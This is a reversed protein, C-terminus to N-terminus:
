NSFLSSSYYVYKEGLTIDCVAHPLMFGHRADKCALVGNILHRGDRGKSSADTIARHVSTCTPPKRRQAPTHSVSTTTPTRPPRTPTRAHPSFPLPASLDVLARLCTGRGRSVEDDDSDDLHDRLWEQYKTIECFYALGSGLEV